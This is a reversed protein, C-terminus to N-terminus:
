LETKRQKTKANIEGLASVLRRVDAPDQDGMHSIRIVKSKLEGGSPAVILHYRDSLEAAVESADLNRCSLATMANSSRAPFIDFNLSRVAQRFSEARQQHQLILAPLTQEQIDKLRAHLQLMVGIAPTFPLQGRQQNQLYSRLNFYLSKPRSQDSELRALAREGMAVFSLGPPLALAKQSGLIAVDVNWDDMAFPDACVSSIADVIFFVNHRRALAGITEIDYLHGTSTEHANILLATYQGSALATELRAMELDVGHALPLEDHPIEFTRCLDVWRQGFTGGNIVLARDATGVFNFVAAEMAATGSGTLVAIQGNTRFLEKLGDLIEHTTTSFAETRNYPLQLAGIALLHHPTPVPGPVFQRWDTTPGTSPHAASM